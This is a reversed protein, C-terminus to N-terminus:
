EAPANESIKLHLTFTDVPEAEEGSRRNELAVTADGPSLATVEIHYVGGKGVMGGPNPDSEYDSSLDFLNGTDGSDAELWLYGTSPNGRLNIRVTDGVSLAITTGDASSDLVASASPNCATLGCAAFAIAAALRFLSSM